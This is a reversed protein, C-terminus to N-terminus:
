SIKMNQYIVSIRDEWEAGLVEVAKSNLVLKNEELIVIPETSGDDKMVSKAKKPTAAGEEIIERSIPTYDGTEPNFDFEILMKVRM